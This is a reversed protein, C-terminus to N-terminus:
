IKIKIDNKIKFIKIIKEKSWLKWFLNVNETINNKRGESQNHYHILPKTIYDIKYGNEVAKCNFDQDEGGNKFNENFGEIKQWVTKKVKFCFGDPIHVKNINNTLQGVLVIRKKSDFHFSYNIGFYTIEKSRKLIIQACGVIDSNNNALKKLINIDPEIDDNMFILNDTEAIKAGKNCNEAFTGGSVIIINFIDNPIKDLCNKLLDHRNHHPIIIDAIKM